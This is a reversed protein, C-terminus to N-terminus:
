EPERSIQYDIYSDWDDVRRGLEEVVQPHTPVFFRNRLIADAVLEGDAVGRMADSEAIRQAAGAQAVRRDVKGALRNQQRRGVLQGGGEGQDLEVAGRPPQHQTRGVDIGRM